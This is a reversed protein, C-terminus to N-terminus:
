HLAVYRYESSCVRQGVAAAAAAPTTMPDGYLNTQHTHCNGARGAARRARGAASYAPALHLGILCPTANCRRMCRAAYQTAIAADFLQYISSKIPHVCLYICGDM